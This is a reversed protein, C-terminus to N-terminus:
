LFFYLNEFINVKIDDQTVTPQLNSVVIRHGAPIMVKAKTQSFIGHSEQQPINDLRSRINSIRSTGQLAVNPRTSVLPM